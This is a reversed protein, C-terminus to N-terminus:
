HDPDKEHTNRGAPLTFGFTSGTGPTSEVWITGGLLRVLKKCISLGLGTGEYKRSLGTDIQHFPKFLQEAEGSSIGIGTDAVKTVVTEGEVASSVVIRGEETFKVANSLLNLLIQEVRRVDSTITGINDAIEASLSLGKKEALPRVGQVVKLISMRLDFSESAVTLQGAEIKSIDLVDSILSLLHQASNRVMNLQKSQEENVPGGLGQLLIGTFGIISNLPTRLEHSMTALFASKLRDAMEAREKAETLEEARATRELVLEELHDRYSQAETEARKRVAIEKGLRWNWCAFLLVLLLAAAIVKWLLDYDISQEYKVSIWKTYIANRDSEPIAALAKNLIPVLEPWDSRVGLSQHYRYPTEGALKIQTYGRRGLYYGTTLTSDVFADVQGSALKQLGDSISLSPILIIEPNYSKLMRAAGFDEVVAVRKGALEDMSAIYHAEQRTFIGIPLSLYSGSFKIFSQRDRTQGVCPLLDLERNRIREIAGQWGGGRAVEFHIGLLSEIRALYDASMGQLRGSGDLFEVPAWESKVGVRIIPHDKLWVREADNLDVSPMNEDLWKKRIDRIEGPTLAALAKDLISALRPNDKRVGFQLVSMPKDLKGMLRLNNFLEREILYVVVARNGAYADAEGRAVADLADATSGYERITVQPYNEQFYVVNHFGKELALTHGALDEETTFTDGGKRGVIVHPIVLYPKTFRFIAERDPRQTIDMLADLEGSQVRDINEQFSGSVRVLAGGLRKNVAALYDSGIGQPQGNRDVFDMPPWDNMVGVRIQPHGELWSREAPTFVIEGSRNGSPAAQAQAPGPLFITGLLWLAQLLVTVTRHGRWSDRCSRGM